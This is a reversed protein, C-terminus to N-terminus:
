ANTKLRKKEAKKEKKADKKEERAEINDQRIQKLEDETYGTLRNLTWRFGKEVPGLSLGMAISIGIHFIAIGQSYQFLYPSIYLTLYKFSIIVVISILVESLGMARGSKNLIYSIVIFSLLVGIQLVYFWVAEYWPPEITFAFSAEESLENDANRARVRFQYNGWDLNTYERFTNQNWLSWDLDLGEMKVQYEINEINEFQNAAYSFRFENMDHPYIYEVSDSQQLVQAGFQERAFAGGFLLSDSRIYEVLRIITAFEVDSDVMEVGRPTDSSWFALVSVWRKTTSVLSEWTTPETPEEIEEDISESLAQQRESRVELEPLLVPTRILATGNLMGAWLNNRSSFILDFIMNSFLGDQETIHKVIEGNRNLIMIGNGFTGFALVGGTTISASSIQNAIFFNQAENNWEKVTVSSGEDIVEWAGRSSTIVILKEDNHSIMANGRLNGGGSVAEFGQESNLRLLGRQQDIVYIRQRFSAATQYSGSLELDVLQRNEYKYINNTTIFFVLEGSIIIDIVRESIANEFDSSISQYRTNGADDVILYGFEGHGGAFIRGQQNINLTYIKGDDPVSINRWEVGDFELIGTTTGFYTIGRTDFTVALIQQNEFLDSITFNQVLRQDSQQNQSYVYEINFVFVVTIILALASKCTVIM